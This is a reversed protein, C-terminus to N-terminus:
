YLTALCFIFSYILLYFSQSRTDADYLFPWKSVSLTPLHYDSSLLAEKERPKISLEGM